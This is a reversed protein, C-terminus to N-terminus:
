NTFEFTLEVDGFRFPRKSVRNLFGASLKGRWVIDDKDRYPLALFIGYTKSNIKVSAEAEWKSLTGGDDEILMFAMDLLQPTWESVLVTNLEKVKKVESRRVVVMFDTILPNYLRLEADTSAVFNEVAGCKIFFESAGGFWSDYQRYTKITKLILTKFESTNETGSRTGGPKVSIGGGGNGWNPDLKKRMQWTLYHSDDNNNIVWVPRSQATEETVEIEKVVHEGKVLTIEYGINVNRGDMPDYTIIPLEKGDWNEFYPWYIQASSKQLNKIFDPLYESSRTMSKMHNILLDKLPNDYHKPSSRSLKGGVCQGPTELMDKMMYEEDYGNTHSGTVADHVEQIHEVELPLAAFTKAVEKLSVYNGPEPIEERIKDKNCSLLMPIFLLLPLVRRKM